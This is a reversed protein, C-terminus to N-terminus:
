SKDMYTSLNKMTAMTYFLEYEAEWKIKMITKKARLVRLDHLPLPTTEHNLASAARGSPWPETGAGGHKSVVPELEM